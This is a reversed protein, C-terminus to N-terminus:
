ERIGVQAGAGLCKEELFGFAPGVNRRNRKVLLRRQRLTFLTYCSRNASMKLIPRAPHKPMRRKQKQAGQPAHQGRMKVKGGSMAM